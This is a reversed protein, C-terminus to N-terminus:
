TWEIRAVSAATNRTVYAFSDNPSIAVFLPRGSIPITATVTDTATDIRRVVNADPHASYAFSGDTSIDIGVADGPTSISAVVANTSTDVRHVFGNRATVYAFSSDPSIAVGFASAIPTTAVITNTTTDIRHLKTNVTDIAYAFLGNPAIRVIAGGDGTGPFPISHTVTNTALDIRSVGATLWTTAYAFARSRSIDVDYPYGLPLPLPASAANTTLDIRVIGEASSVALAFSGDASIAVGRADRAVPIIASSLNTSTSIKVVNGNDNQGSLAVDGLPSMAISWPNTTTSTTATIAVVDISASASLPGSTATISRTGASANSAASVSVTARGASDTVASTSSLSLAAPDSTTFTVVQGAWPDGRSDLVTATVDVPSGTAIGTAGLTLTFTSNSSTARAPISTSLVIAPVAVASGVLIQRRNIGTEAPSTEPM